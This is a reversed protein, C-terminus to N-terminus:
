RVRVRAALAACFREAADAAVGRLHHNLHAAGTVALAGEGELERLILLLAVSDAGGSLAVLIRSGPSCLAQREITRRVAALLM